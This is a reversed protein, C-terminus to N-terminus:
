LDVEHEYDLTVRAREGHVLEVLEVAQSEMELLLGDVKARLYRYMMLSPIAVMLGFATNYLAVSIGHALAEPNNQGPAQAGFIEIMGIVTGLLGLLPAMSSITGLAGIYRNLSHAVVRGEEEIAEKMIERPYRANRLGASFICGLLSHSNLREILSPSAGQKEYEQLTRYLLGPPLIQSRRLQYIREFVIALAVVSAIILTWIPWGAAQIIHLIGLGFVGEQTQLM